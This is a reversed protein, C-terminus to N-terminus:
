PPTSVAQVVLPAEASLSLPCSMAPATDPVTAAAWHMRSGDGAVEGNGWWRRLTGPACVGDGVYPLDGLLYFSGPEGARLADQLVGWSAAAM